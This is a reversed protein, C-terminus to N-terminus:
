AKRLRIQHVEGAVQHTLFHHGTAECYAVFDERAAPDTTLIELVDGNCIDALRKRAKLVPLPCKLGKVDLIHDEM